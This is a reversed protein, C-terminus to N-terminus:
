VVSNGWWPGGELDDHVAGRYIYIYIYISLSLSLSYGMEQVFHPAALEQVMNGISAM